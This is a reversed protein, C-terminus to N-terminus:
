ENICHSAFFDDILSCAEDQADELVYHGAEPFYHYEAEPFRKRWENYFLDNFCFDKGGWILMMPTQNFLSLKSEIETITLWSKHEPGMPIDMVFRHVAVRNRWSDYPYLYGSAVKDSLPKTVAMQVALGAFVNLGRVLLEGIIPLRCVAIRLPMRPLPFAATNLVVISKIASPHRSAYGFGIAGGWDHVVVSVETLGLHEILGTLTNIHNELTYAYGQPKDSLGCGIHDPVILRFRDKLKAVLNRYYYSWTPNGHVMVIAPGQGEDLYSMTQGNVVFKKPTFEYPLSM